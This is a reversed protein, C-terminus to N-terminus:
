RGVAFPVPPLHTAPINVEQGDDYHRSWGNGTWTDVWDPTRTVQRGQADLWQAPLPLEALEGTTLRV